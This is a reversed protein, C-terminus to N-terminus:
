SFQYCMKVTKLKWLETKLPMKTFINVHHGGNVTDQRMRWVMEKRKEKKGRGRRKGLWEGRWVWRGNVCGMRWVMEKGRDWWLNKKKRRQLIKHTHTHTHLSQLEKKKKKKQNKMMSNKPRFSCEMVPYPHTQIQIQPKLIGVHIPKLIGMGQVHHNPNRCPTGTSVTSSSRATPWTGMRWRESRIRWM